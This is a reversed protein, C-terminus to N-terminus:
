SWQKGWLELAAAKEPLYDHRNYIAAVSSPLAHGLVREVHDWPVGVSAMGTAVSRRIDHVCFAPLPSLEIGDALARADREAIARDLRAKAKSFGSVASKGAPSKTHLASLLYPGARHRPLSAVIAQAPGSLPCDHDIGTKYDAAPVRFHPIGSRERLWGQQLNSVEGRRQGTLILLRFWEAFPYGLDGAADWVRRLEDVSLTVDRPKYKEKRTLGLMPSAPLDYRDVAWGFLGNLHKRVELVAQATRKALVIDLLETVDRRGISAIDREGWQPVVVNTLWHNANKWSKAQERKAYVEVYREVVVAVSRPNRGGTEILAQRRAAEAKREAAWDRGEDAADMAERALARAKDLKIHPYAGLSARQPNGKSTGDSGKGGRVRCVVSWTKAGHQSIRLRLGPCGTDRYEIRTGSPAPRMAEVVQSSLRTQKTVDKVSPSAATPPM